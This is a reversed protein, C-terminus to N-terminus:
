DRCNINKNIIFLYKEKNRLIYLTDSNKPKILFDGKNLFYILENESFNCNKSNPLFFELTDDLKFYVKERYEMMIKTIVGQYEEEFLFNNYKGYLNEIDKDNDHTATLIILIIVILLGAITIIKILLLSRGKNTKMKLYDKITIENLL